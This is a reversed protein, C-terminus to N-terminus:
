LLVLTCSLSCPALSLTVKTFLQLLGKPMWVWSCALFRHFLCDLDPEQPIEFVSHINTVACFRSLGFNLIATYYLKCQLWIFALNCILPKNVQKVDRCQLKDAKWWWRWGREHNQLLSQGFIVLFIGSVLGLRGRLFVPLFFFLGLFRGVFVGWFPSVSLLSTWFREFDLLESFNNSAQNPVLFISPYLLVLVGSSLVNVPRRNLSFKNKLLLQLYEPPHTKGVTQSTRHNLFFYRCWTNTKLCIVFVCWNQSQLKM